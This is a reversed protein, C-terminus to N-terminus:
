PLENSNSYNMEIPVSIEVKELLFILFLQKKKLNLHFIISLEM